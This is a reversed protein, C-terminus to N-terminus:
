RIHQRAIPEAASNNAGFDLACAVSLSLFEESVDRLAVVVLDLEALEGFLLRGIGVYLVETTAHHGVV